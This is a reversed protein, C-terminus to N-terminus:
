AAPVRGEARRVGLLAHLEATPVRFKNGLRLVTVPFEGRAQLEYSATRGIGLARGTAPDPAGALM